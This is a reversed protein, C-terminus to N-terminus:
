TVCINIGSSFYPEEESRRTAHRIATIITILDPRSKGLYSQCAGTESNFFDLLVLSINLRPCPTVIVSRKSLDLAVYSATRNAHHQRGIFVFVYSHGFRALWALARALESYKRVAMEEIEIKPTPNHLSTRERRVACAHKSRM